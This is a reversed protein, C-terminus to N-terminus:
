VGENGHGEAAFRPVIALRDVEVADIGLVNPWCELRRAHHNEPSVFVLAGAVDAAVHELLQQKGVQDDGVQGQVTRLHPILRAHTM